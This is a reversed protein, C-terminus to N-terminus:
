DVGPKPLDAAVIRDAAQHILLDGWPKGLGSQCSSEEWTTRIEAAWLGM